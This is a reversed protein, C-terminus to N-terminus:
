MIVIEATLKIPSPPLDLGKIIQATSKGAAGVKVRVSVDLSDHETTQLATVGGALVRIV